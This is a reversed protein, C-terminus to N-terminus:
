QTQMPIGLKRIVATWHAVETKTYDTLADPGMYYITAGGQEVRQKFDAGETITKIAQALRDVIDRPTGAPAYLAYWTDIQLDPLGAEATTPVDPILAHRQPSFIALGRVAHGQLPGILQQTTNVFFGLTGGLLDNFAAATARYPVATVKIDAMQALQESAITNQTGVGPSGYTLKGPNARAYAILDALTRAPFDNNVALVQSARSIMAVAAFDRVPDWQLSQFLAPNTTQFGSITLLLTYGDPTARAVDLTALNGSAGARNEVVFPEGLANQLEAAIQRATIDIGGGPLSPTIITVTRAPYAQAAAAGCLGVLALAALVVATFKSQGPM